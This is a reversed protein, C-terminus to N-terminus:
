HQINFQDLLSKPGDEIRRPGRHWKGHCASSTRSRTPRTRAIVNINRGTPKKVDERSLIHISLYTLTFIILSSHSVCYRVIECQKCRQLTQNDPLCRDCRDYGVLGNKAAITHYPQFPHKLCGECQDEVNLPMISFWTTCCYVISRLSQDGSTASNIATSGNDTLTQVPLSYTLSRCKWFSVKRASLNCCRSVM